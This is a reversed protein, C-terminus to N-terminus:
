SIPRFLMLLLRFSVFSPVVSSSSVLFSVRMHEFRKKVKMADYVYTPLFSETGGGEDERRGVAGGGSADHVSDGREREKGKGGRSSSTRSTLSLGSGSAIGNVNANSKEKLDNSRDDDMVFERLFEVTAEVLPYASAEPSAM